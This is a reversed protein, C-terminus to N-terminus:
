NEKFPVVNNKQVAKDSPLIGAGALFSGLHTLIVGIAACYVHLGPCGYNWVYVGLLSAILGVWTKNRKLFDM